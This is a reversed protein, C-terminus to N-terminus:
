IQDPLSTASFAKSSAGDIMLRIYIHFGPLHVLDGVKFNPYFEKELYEADRASVRFSIITGVNGLIASVTKKDIQDIYQHVLNLCLRYKRAEPLMDAYSGAAFSQLEDLYLYFDQRKEEPIDTRSLATLYIKIVFLSGLLMSTDEGIRGKALNVLLVKGTDMLERMNFSSKKKGIIDRIFPSSLFAGAKNQIPAIAEARFRLPWKDFEKGWFEKVKEDKVYLLVTKRFRADVLLKNLDLLTAGPYEALTLILNRLIHETRQGWSDAWLKKFISVLGSAILYRGETSNVGELVNFGISNRRDSPNIYIVDETREEPVLSVITEVLDGHPDQLALGDGKQLDQIILNKILTSKGTGTKGIVYLHSRRDKRKIGFRKRENRYNTEGIYFVENEKDGRM